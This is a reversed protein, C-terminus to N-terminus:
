FIRINQWYLVVYVDPVGRIILNINNSCSHSNLFLKVPM